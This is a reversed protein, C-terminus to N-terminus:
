AQPEPACFHMDSIGDFPADILNAAGAARDLADAAARVVRRRRRHAADRDGIEAVRQRAAEVIERSEAGIDGKEGDDVRPRDPAPAAPIRSRDTAAATERESRAKCQDSRHRRDPKILHAPAPLGAGFRSASASSM